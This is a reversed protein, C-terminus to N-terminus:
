TAPHLNDFRQKLGQYPNLNIAAEHAVTASDVEIQTEIGSLSKPKNRCDETM